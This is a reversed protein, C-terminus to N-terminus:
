CLRKIVVKYCALMGQLVLLPFVLMTADVVGVM